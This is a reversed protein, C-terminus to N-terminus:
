GPGGGGAAREVRGAVVAVLRDRLKARLPFDFGLTAIDAVVDGRRLVIEQAMLDGGAGEAELPIELQYAAVREVGPPAPITLEQVTVDGVDFDIEENEDLTRQLEDGYCDSGGDALLGREFASVTAEAQAASKLISADSNVQSDEMRFGNSAAEAIYTVDGLDIGACILFEESPDDPERASASWGGPLDGRRLVMSEARAQAAEDIARSAAGGFATSDMEDDDSGCGAAGAALTGVAVV